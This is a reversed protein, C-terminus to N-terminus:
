MAERTAALDDSSADLGTENRLRVWLAELLRACLLM